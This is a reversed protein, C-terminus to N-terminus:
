DVIDQDIQGQEAEAWSLADRTAILQEKLTMSPNPLEPPAIAM